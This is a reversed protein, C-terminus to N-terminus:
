PPGCVPDYQEWLPRRCAPPLYPHLGLDPSSEPRSYGDLPLDSASCQYQQPGVYHPASFVLINSYNFM